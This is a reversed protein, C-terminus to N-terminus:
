RIARDCGRYQGLDALDLGSQYITGHNAKSINQTCDFKPTADQLKARRCDTYSLEFSLWLTAM